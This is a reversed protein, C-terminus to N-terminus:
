LTPHDSPPTTASHEAVLVRLPKVLHVDLFHELGEGIDVDNVKLLWQIQLGDWLAMLQSATKPADVGPRLYGQRRTNELAAEIVETVWTYRRQMYANAPHEPRTAEASLVAFLDIEGPRMTSVRAYDLLAALTAIGPTAGEVDANANQDRREIVASLLAVKNPFHHLLGAQSIGALAAVERLSGADYGQTGFVEVAADLIRAKTGATKRYAGRPRTTPEDEAIPSVSM